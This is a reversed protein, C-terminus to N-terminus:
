GALIGLPQKTIAISVMFLFVLMAALLFGAKQIGSKAKRFAMVGLGIYVLLLLLKVHVFPPFAQSVVLMAIGSLLLFTDIVHPSIRVWKAQLIANGQLLWGGRVMFFLGSIAVLTMHLHKLGIYVDMSVGETCAPLRSEGARRRDRGM